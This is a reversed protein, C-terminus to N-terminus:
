AELITERVVEDPTTVGDFCCKIGAARLSVMGQKQALQRLEDAQANAM